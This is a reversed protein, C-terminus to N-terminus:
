FSKEGKTVFKLTPDGQVNEEDEVIEMPAAGGNGM